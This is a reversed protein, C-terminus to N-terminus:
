DLVLGYDFSGNSDNASLNIRRSVGVITRECNMGITLSCSPRTLAAEIPNNTTSMSLIMLDDM